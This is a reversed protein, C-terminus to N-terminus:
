RQSTVDHATLGGLEGFPFIEHQDSILYVEMAELAVGNLVPSLPREQTLDSGATWPNFSPMVLLRRGDYRGKLFCKFLEMRGTVPDRLRVAPHDHGIVLTAVDPSLEPLERDGHVFLTDDVRYQAVVEVNGFQSTLVDLNGDHNGQILVVSEAWTSVQDLLGRIHTWEQSTFPGFQHRLDGNILIRPWPRDASIGLAVAIEHLRGQITSLHGRPVLAGDRHLAEEFGLHVDALALTGQDPLAVALDILTLDDTLEFPTM